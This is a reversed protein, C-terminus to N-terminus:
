GGRCCREPRTAPLLTKQAAVARAEFISEPGSQAAIAREKAILKPGILARDHEEVSLV